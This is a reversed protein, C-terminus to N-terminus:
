QPHPEAVLWALRRFSTTLPGCVTLKRRNVGWFEQFQTVNISTVEPGLQKDLMYTLDHPSLPRPPDVAGAADQRTARLYVSQVANGLAFRSITASEDRFLLWRLIAGQADIWQLSVDEYALVTVRRANVRVQNEHSIIVFPTSPSSVATDNRGVKCRLQAAMPRKRTGSVSFKVVHHPSVRPAAKAKGQRRVPVPMPVPTTKVTIAFDPEAGAPNLLIVTVEGREADALCQPLVFKYHFEIEETQKLPRALESERVVVIRPAPKENRKEALRMGAEVQLDHLMSRLQALVALTGPRWYAEALRFEIWQLRAEVRECLDELLGPELAGAQLQENVRALRSRLESECGRAEDVCLGDSGKLSNQHFAPLAVPTNPEVVRPRNSREPPQQLDEDGGGGRDEAARKLSVASDPPDLVFNELSVGHLIALHVSDDYDLVPALDLDGFLSSSRWDM